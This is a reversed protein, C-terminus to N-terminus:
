PILNHIADDTAAVWPMVDSAVLEHQRDQNDEPDLFHRGEGRAEAARSGDRGLYLAVTVLAHATRTAPGTRTSSSFGNAGRRGYSVGDDYRQGWVVRVVAVYDVHLLGSLEQVQTRSLQAGDRDGGSSFALLPGGIVHATLDPLVPVSPVSAYGGAVFSTAPVVTLHHGLAQELSELPRSLGLLLDPNSAREDTWRPFIQMMQGSRSVTFSVVAVSAGHHDRSELYRQVGYPGVRHCGSGCLMAVVALAVGVLRM